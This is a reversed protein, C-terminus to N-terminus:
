DGAVGAYDSGTPSYGHEKAEEEHSDDGHDHAAAIAIYVLTL